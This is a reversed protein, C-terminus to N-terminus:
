KKLCRVQSNLWMRNQETRAPIRGKGGRTEIARTVLRPGPGARLTVESLRVHWDGPIPERGTPCPASPYPRDCTSWDLERPLTSELHRTSRFWTLKTTMTQRVPQHM